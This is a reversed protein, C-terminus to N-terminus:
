ATMDSGTQLTRSSIRRRLTSARTASTKAHAQAVHSAMTHSTDPRRRGANASRQFKSSASKSKAKTSSLSLRALSLFSKTGDIPDLVWISNSGATKGMEEGLISHDPFKAAIASRMATEIAKDAITVPSDDAKREYATTKRFHKRALKRAIDALSGAFECLSDIDSTMKDTANRRCLGRPLDPLHWLLV